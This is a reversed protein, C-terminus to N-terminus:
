QSEVGPCDLRYCTALGVVMGWGMPVVYLPVNNNETKNRANGTGSIEEM